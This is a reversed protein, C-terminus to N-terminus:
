WLWRGGGLELWRSAQWLPRRAEVMTPDLCVGNGVLSQSDIFMSASRLLACITTARRGPSTRTNDRVLIWQRWRHLRLSRCILWRRVLMRAGSFGGRGPRWHVGAVCRSNSRALDLSRRSSWAVSRFSRCAYSAMLESVGDHLDGGIHSYLQPLNIQGAAAGVVGVVCWLLYVRTRFDLLSVLDGERKSGSCCASPPSWGERRHLDPTTLTKTEAQASVLAYRVPIIQDHHLLLISPTIKQTNGDLFSNEATKETKIQL